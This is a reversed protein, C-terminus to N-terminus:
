LQVWDPSPNFYIVNATDTGHGIIRIVDGVGSPATFDVVGANESIYVPGGKVFSGQITNCDFFGRLLLGHSVQTGLAIALLVPGSTAEADADAYKWKGDTAMYMLKGAGLVDTSDETGFFVVEGCGVDNALGTVNNHNIIINGDPNLLIDGLAGDSDVTELTLSGNEDVGIWAYDGSDYAIKLQADTASPPTSPTSTITIQAASASLVSAGAPVLKITDQGFDIYTKNGTIDEEFYIDGRYVSGSSYKFSM